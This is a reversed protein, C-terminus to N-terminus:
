LGCEENMDALYGEYVNTRVVKTFPKADSSIVPDFAPHYEWWEAGDYEWRYMHAGDYFVVVLDGAAEREGYGNDYDVNAIETFEDWSLQYRGDESGVWAVNELTRGFTGIDQITEDLLNAM